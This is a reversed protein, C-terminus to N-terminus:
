SGTSLDESSVAVMAPRLLRDGVRYGRRMVATILLHGDGGGSVAEHIAPDFEDGESVDIPRVGESALVSILQERTSTLGSRFREEGPTEPHSAAAADLSDLVPLLAESVRRAASTAMGERDRESRKRYNEYDAAVRKLDELHSAAETRAEILHGALVDLAEGPDDPLVLDLADLARDETLDPIDTV